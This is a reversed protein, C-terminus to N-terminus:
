TWIQYVQQEMRNQKIRISQATENEEEAQWNLEGNESHTQDSLEDV